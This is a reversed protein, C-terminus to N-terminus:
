GHSTLVPRFELGSPRERELAVKLDETVVPYLDWDLV